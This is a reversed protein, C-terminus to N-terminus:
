RNSEFFNFKKDDQYIKKFWLKQVNEDLDSLFYQDFIDSFANNKRLIKNRILYTMVDAFQMGDFCNSTLFSFRVKIDDRKSNREIQEKIAQIYVTELDNIRRHWNETGISINSRRRDFLITVTWIDSFMTQVPMGTNKMKLALAFVAQKAFYKEYGESLPIYTDNRKYLFSHFFVNPHKQFLELWKKILNIKRIDNERIESGHLSYFCVPDQKRAQKLDNLFDFEERDSNTILYWMLNHDNDNVILETSEDVWITIAKKM